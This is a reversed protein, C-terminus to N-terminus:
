AAVAKTPRQYSGKSTRTVASSFPPSEARTLAASGDHHQRFLERETLSITKQWSSITDDVECIDQKRFMRKKCHMLVISKQIHRELCMRRVEEEVFESKFREYDARNYFLEDKLVTNVSPFYCVKVRDYFCIRRSTKSGKSPFMSNTPM